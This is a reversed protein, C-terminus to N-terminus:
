LRVTTLQFDANAWAKDLRQQAAEVDKARKKGQAKLSQVLGYLSWGNEPFHRLEENFVAEAEKAQGAELLVAGLNHRSPYYWDPPENYALSDEHEVAKRLLPIAAKYDKRLAAIEGELVNQGILVITKGPNLNWITVKELRPDVALKKLEELEKTAEDAKGQARFAMGRAYHYVARPYVLDEEFAPLALIDDWMGFRLMGYIPMVHYHQLTVLQPVKMLDPNGGKHKVHDAAEMADKKRGELTRTVFMFHFNHPHYAIPYIGQASCQTFYENDSEVARQNAASADAYRGTRLYIHAPMHVLHGAGPVLSNLRDASAEGRQPEPSAEIAHIYFHNAGPHDPALKLAGELMTTIEATWPQAEGSRLWLNWPHLNMLAEAALAQIDADDPYKKAVERMADAYATDLATRTEPPQESYRKSLAQILDREKETVKDAAALAKQVSDWAKPVNNPDMNPNNYNPGLVFAAGWYCMACAPDLSAAYLFSRNAEAHNFAYALVLAQDFYPKAQENVTVQYSHSGMGKLLPPKSKDVAPEAPPAEQDAQPAKPEGTPQDKAENRCGLLALAILIASVFGIRRM